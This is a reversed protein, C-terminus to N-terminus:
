FYKSLSLHSNGIVFAIAGQVRSLSKMYLFLPKTYSTGNSVTVNEWSHSLTDWQQPDAINQAAFRGGRGVNDMTMIALTLNHHHGFTQVKFSSLSFPSPNCTAAVLTPHPPFSWDLNPLIHKSMDDNIKHTM